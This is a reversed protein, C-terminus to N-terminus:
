ELATESYYGDIDYNIMQLPLVDDILRRYFAFLADKELVQVTLKCEKIPPLTVTHKKVQVLPMFSSRLLVGKNLVCVAEPTNSSDNRNNVFNSIGAALTDLSVANYALLYTLIPLPKPLRIEIGGKSYLQEGKRQLKKTVEMSELSILLEQSNLFSKIEITAVVSEAILLADLDSGVDVLPLRKDVIVCDQQQSKNGDSDLIIGSRIDLTKPLHLRLFQQIIGERVRGTTIAHGTGAAVEAKAALAKAIKRLQDRITITM